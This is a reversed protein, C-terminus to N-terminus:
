CKEFWNANRCRTRRHKWYEIAYFAGSSCYYYLQPICIEFHDVKFLFRSSFIAAPQNQVFNLFFNFELCCTLWKGSTRGEAQADRMWGSHDSLSVIKLFEPVFTDWLARTFKSITSRPTFRYQFIWQLFDITANELSISYPALALYPRFCVGLKRRCSLDSLWYCLEFIPRYYWCIFCFHTELTVVISTM